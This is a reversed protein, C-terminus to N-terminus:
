RPQTQMDDRPGTPRSVHVLVERQVARMEGNGFPFIMANNVCPQRHIRSQESAALVADRQQRVGLMMANFDHQGTGRQDHPTTNAPGNDERFRGAILRGSAHLTVPDFRRLCGIEQVFDTRSKGTQEVPVAVVPQTEPRFRTAARGTFVATKGIRNEFFRAAVKM